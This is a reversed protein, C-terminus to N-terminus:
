RQQEKYSIAQLNMGNWFNSVKSLLKTLYFPSIDLLLNM